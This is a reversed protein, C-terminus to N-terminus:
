TSIYLSNMKRKAENKKKEARQDEAAILKAVSFVLNFSYIVEGM